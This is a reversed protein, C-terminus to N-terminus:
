DFSIRIHKITEVTKVLSVCMILGRGRNSGLSIHWLGRINVARMLGLLDDSVEEDEGIEEEKELLLM